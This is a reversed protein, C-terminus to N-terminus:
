SIFSPVGHACASVNFLGAPLCQGACNCHTLNDILSRSVEYRNAPINGEEREELLELKLFRCFDPVLLALLEKAQVPPFFDGVSGTIKNCEVEFNDSKTKYNWSRVNEVKKM